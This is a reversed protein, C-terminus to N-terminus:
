RDLSKQFTWAHGQSFLQSERLFDKSGSRLCVPNAQPPLPAAEGSAAPTMAYPFISAGILEGVAPHM